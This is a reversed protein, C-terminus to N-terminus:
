SEEKKKKLLFLSAVGILLVIINVLKNKQVRGFLQLSESYEIGPAIDMGYRLALEKIHLLNIIPIGKANMDQIIGRNKHECLNLKETLGNPLGVAHVCNGLAAHNGGINILLKIKNEELIKEKTEISHTLNDPIFLQRKNRKIAEGLLETGESYIGAGKDGSAGRTILISKYKLGGKKILWNEIDIWTANPQNAGFTSAGISSILVVKNHLVQLAALTAVNLSPFSASCLVGVKDGKKIGAERILRVMLAAFDTNSSIEKSKLSGLTTTIPTYDDGIMFNNQVNSKSDGVINRQAKENKIIDFWKNCLTIAKEMARTERNKQLDVFVFDTAIIGILLILFIILLRYNLSINKM